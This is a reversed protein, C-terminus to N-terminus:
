KPKKLDILHEVEIDFFTKLISIYNKVPAPIEDGCALGLNKANIWIVLTQLITLFRDNNPDNSSIAKSYREAFEWAIAFDICETQFVALIQDSLDKAKKFPTINLIYPFEIKDPLFGILPGWITIVRCGDKLQSFKSLMSEIINEDSFWFLIVTADSINSERIDECRFSWNSYTSSELLERARSIKDLNNDIGVAKKVKFEQLSIRIANGSGCGLHYFVDNESLGSFLFIERLTENPLEVDEGSIIASPLSSIYEEIKM